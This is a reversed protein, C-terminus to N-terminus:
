LIITSVLIQVFHPMVVDHCYQLHVGEMYHNGVTNTTTGTVLKPVTAVKTPTTINFPLNQAVRKNVCDTANDECCIETEKKNEKRAHLRIDGRM